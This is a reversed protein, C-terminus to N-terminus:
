EVGYVGAIVCGKRDEDLLAGMVELERTRYEDMGRERILGARSM